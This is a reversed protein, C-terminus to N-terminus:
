SPRWARNWIGIVVRVCRFCCAHAGKMPGTHERWFICEHLDVIKIWRRGSGTPGAWKLIVGISSKLQAIYRRRVYPLLTVEFQLTIRKM